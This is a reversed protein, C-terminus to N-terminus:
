EKIVGIVNGSQSVRATYATNSKVSKTRDGECTLTM